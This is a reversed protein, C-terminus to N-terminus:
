RLEKPVVFFYIAAFLITTFAAIVIMGLIGRQWWRLTDWRKALDSIPLGGVLEVTGILALVGPFGPVIFKLWESWHELHQQILFWAVGVPIGITVKILGRRRITIGKNLLWSDLRRHVHRDVLSM